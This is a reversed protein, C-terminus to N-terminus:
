ACAGARVVGALLPPSKLLRNPLLPGVAGDIVTGSLSTGLKAKSLVLGAGVVCILVSLLPTLIAACSAATLAMSPLLVTIPAKTEEVQM